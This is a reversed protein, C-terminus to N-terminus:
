KDNLDFRMLAICRPPLTVRTNEGDRAAPIECAELRGGPLLDKAQLGRASVLGGAGAVTCSRAEDFADNILTLGLGGDRVSAAALTEGAGHVPCLDAGKHASILSFAQGAGALAAGDPLVDVGGEGVPQFFCMIPADLKRANNLVGTLMKAAFLGDAACPRAYWAAWLNWEDYSFHIGQPTISRMSRLNDLNADAAAMIEGFSAKLAADDTLDLNVNNYTHYSIYPAVDKLPVASGEIWRRGSDSFFYPGSSCIELDPTVARMALAAKRGMEAYSEPEMPGEMHGYGMENGLSWFRVGYPEAHGRAARRSGYPTDPAGNCYEVWAACEEPTDWALNVTIFPEAGIERCLAIFDDTDIEHMDYGHSYPQTEDETVAQLPARQDPILFMDQWRYEGAFNGGPWRLMGVGMEKLRDVVDRRMGHFSDRPLLSVSGIIVRARETFTLRLVAHDEDAAPCLAKEFRAYGGGEATFEASALVTKEAADTLEARISVRRSSKVTVAFDYARGGRIFLDRQGIGATEGEIPNEVTQANLENRRRMDKDIMHRVYPDRDNRFFARRGIAFWDAAVGLRRAPRGAFKRNRILQASLGGYVCARTHELNCGFVYSSSPAAAGADVRLIAPSPM